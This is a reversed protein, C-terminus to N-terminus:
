SLWHLAIPYCAIIAALFGLLNPWAEMHAPNKPDPLDTIAFHNIVSGREFTSEATSCPNLSVSFSTSIGPNKQPLM